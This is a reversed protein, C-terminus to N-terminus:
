LGIPFTAALGRGQNCLARAVERAALHSRRRGIENGAIPACVNSFGDPRRYKFRTESATRSQPGASASLTCNERPKAGARRATSRHSLKSYEGETFTTATPQLRSISPCSALHLKLYAASPASYTNIVFGNPHQALWLMYGTDDNVFHQM